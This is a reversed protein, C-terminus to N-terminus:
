NWGVDVWLISSIKVFRWRRRKIQRRGLTGLDFNQIRREDTWELWIDLGDSYKLNM